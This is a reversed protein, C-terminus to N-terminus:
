RCSSRGHHLSESGETIFWQHIGQLGEIMGNCIYKMGDGFSYFSITCFLLNLLFLQFM